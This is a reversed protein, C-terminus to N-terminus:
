DRLVASVLQYIGLPVVTLALLFDTFALSAIVWNSLTRLNRYGIVSLLVLVNGFLIWLPLACLALFIWRKEMEPETTQNRRSAATSLNEGFGVGGGFGGDLFEAPTFMEDFSTSSEDGTEDLVITSSSEDSFAFFRDDLERRRVDVFM